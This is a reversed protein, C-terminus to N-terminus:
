IGIDRYTGKHSKIRDEIVGSGKWANVHAEWYERDRPHHNLNSYM